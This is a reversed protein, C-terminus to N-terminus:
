ALEPSTDLLFEFNLEHQLIQEKITYFVYKNQQNDKKQSSVLWQTPM